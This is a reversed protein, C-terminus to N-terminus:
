KCQQGLRRRHHRLRVDYEDNCVIEPPRIEAAIAAREVLRRVQIAHCRRPHLEGLRIGRARNTRRRPGCQKRPLVRRPQLNGVPYGTARIAGILHQVTRREAVFQRQVFDRKRLREFGGTVRRRVDAFPVKAPVAEPRFFLAEVDVDRAIVRTRWQAVKRRKLILIGPNCYSLRLM